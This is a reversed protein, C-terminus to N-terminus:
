PLLFDRDERILDVSDVVIGYREEMYKHLEDIRDILELRYRIGEESSLLGETLLREAYKEVPVNNRSDRAADELAKYLKDPITLTKSM